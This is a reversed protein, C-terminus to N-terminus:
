KYGRAFLERLGIITKADDFECNDLMRRCTDFDLEVIEVREDHELNQKTKTLDFALFIHDMENTFGPSCYCSAVRILEGARHGTEEELEARARNEMSEGPELRGAPVELVEKGVAIRFQRVLMVSDGIVPVIGVGGGHVVIERHAVTGDELRAQGVDLRIIRGEYKTERTVWTENM